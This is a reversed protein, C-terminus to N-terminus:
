GLPKTITISDVKMSIMEDIAEKDDLTWVYLKLGAQKVKNAIIPTVVKYCLNLGFAELQIAEDILTNITEENILSDDISSNYLYKISNKKLLERQTVKPCEGTLFCRENLGAKIILAIANELGENEKIDLNLDVKYARILSIVEELKVLTKTPDIPDHSLVADNNENFRVDVEIVDMNYKLAEIISEISNSKTGMFGAHAILKVGKYM